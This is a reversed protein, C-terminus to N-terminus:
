VGPVVEHELGAYLDETNERVVLLDVNDFPTKVGPMNRIPRFNAYLLFKKRLTVNISPFGEGIPTSIPGKIAVKNRRISELLDDPLYKGYREFADAGANLDEWEVEIGAAEVVKRTAAAVEPGIGDGPIMTIKHKM